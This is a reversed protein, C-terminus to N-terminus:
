KADDAEKEDDEHEAKKPEEEERRHRDQADEGRRTPGTMELIVCHHVVRDIAAATTMPNKFIRDWESFVLNSTIVVSRREYRESLFTFLVEMEEQSQQVYGIDDIIVVDFNDLRRLYQDLALDKKAALLGQVLKFAPRFLVRHGRQVLEHGIACITHTKGRGPLGFALLNEARDVFGGECLAPLQTRVKKPLKDINLTGLTKDTPLCSEKLNRDIRRRERDHTEMEVLHRLYATFTWGESEAKEGVESHAQIFTPLKLSRLMIELAPREDPAAIKTTTKM